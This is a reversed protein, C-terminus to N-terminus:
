SHRMVQCSFVVGLSSLYQWKELEKKYPFTENQMNTIFEDWNDSIFKIFADNNGRQKYRRIYEEKADIKPYVLVYKIDAEKLAQRVVDHSSVLIIDVEGINAKIHDIYNSPFNPNRVKTNNGNEDKVWSFESSDSDLCVKGHSEQNKFFESKGVGPFGSIITTERM